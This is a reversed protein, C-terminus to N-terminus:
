FSWRNKWYKQIVKDYDVTNKQKQVKWTCQDEHWRYNYGLQAPVPYIFIDNDALSCYMDYDGAGAVGVNQHDHAATRLYPYLSKHYVVTPTNVVSRQLMQKKFDQLTKYQHIQHGVKLGDSNIFSLGSQMCLIRNKGSNLIKLCNTIYNKDLLDDSGVFTVYETDINEFAYDFAERYSNPYLNPLKKLVIRKDTITSLYEWTGDTSGNDCILISINDYIQSTISCVCEELHRM